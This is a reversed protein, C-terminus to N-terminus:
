AKQGGNEIGCHGSTTPWPFVPPPVKLIKSVPNVLNVLNWGFRRPVAKRSIKDIKYIRDFFETV